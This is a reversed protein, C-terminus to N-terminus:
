GLYESLRRLAAQATLERIRERDGDFHFREAQVEGERHLWAIWVTGVPKEATGGGPGAIGTVAIGWDAPSNHLLGTVMARACAESVAGHEILLSEPM